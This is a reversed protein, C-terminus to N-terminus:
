SYPIPEKVVAPVSLNSYLKQFEILFITKLVDFKFFILKLGNENKAGGRAPPAPPAAAPSPSLICSQVM